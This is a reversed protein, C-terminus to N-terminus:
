PGDHPDLDLIRRLAHASGELDGARRMAEAHEREADVVHPCRRGFVAPRDFRSKVQALAPPPLAVADLDTRWATELTGLNAGVVDALAEGGYWRRIAAPGHKDRLWGVFAGAVTYSRSSNDALFGLA